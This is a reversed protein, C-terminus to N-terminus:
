KSTGQDDTLNQLDGVLRENLKILDNKDNMFNNLAILNLNKILLDIIHLRFQPVIKFFLNEDERKLHNMLNKDILILSEKFETEYADPSLLSLKQILNSIKEILEKKDDNSSLGGNLFYSARNIWTVLHNRLNWGLLSLLSLEM